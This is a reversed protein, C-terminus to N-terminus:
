ADCGNGRNHVQFTTLRDWHEWELFVLNSNSFWCGLPFRIEDIRAYYEKGGHVWTVLDNERLGHITTQM